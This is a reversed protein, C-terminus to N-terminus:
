IKMIKYYVPREATPRMRNTADLAGRYRPAAVILRDLVLDTAFGAVANDEL